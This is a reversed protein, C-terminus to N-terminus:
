SRRSTGSRPRRRPSASSRNPGLLFFASASAALASAAGILCAIRFDHALESGRAALVAGLLATAILGGTRSVASNFGSASGTHRADVSSLVATTLPAVAGAMGVAMVVVAPFVTDWYGGGAIRTMLGFGAAVGLPGITLPWRSGVKGAAQGILPSIAAIILPFPLLAAGAATASYGRGVILLYPVLVLVGGLAGYLAFTLLSLGVYSRSGFLGLPMMAKDGKAKEVLVFGILMAAGAATAAIAVGTWGTKGSGLTLGWTIVGLGLTALLGGFADLPISQKDKPAPAFRWALALAGLAVPINILFIARWGSADILWGGLVPGVAGAVAGAAAWIGVARGRAEGQYTAGLIALSSPLLVAAGVGQLARGAQLLVLTPAVACAASALAFLATGAMLMLKKGYRDGAAGGLLLLASLPLLYANIVWQLGEADGGLSKGIAPLGVNVVSGDIFSLSSALICAALVWHPHKAKNGVPGQTPERPGHASM